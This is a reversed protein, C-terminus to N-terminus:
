PVETVIFSIDFAKHEELEIETKNKNLKIYYSGKISKTGEESYFGAGIIDGNKTFALQLDTIFKEELTMEIDNLETDETDLADYFLRFTYNPKGFTTMERRNGKYEIGLVMVEGNNSVDYDEIEMLRDKVPLAHVRQNTKELKKNFITYGIKEKENRKNPLNYIIMLQTSDRSIRFDVAPMGLTWDYDFEYVNIRETTLSLFNKDLGRLFFQHKKAPRDLKTTLLYLRNQFQFIEQVDEKTGKLLKQLDVDGANKLQRNYKEITYKTKNNQGFSSIISNAKVKKVFFSVADYAVIEQINTNRSTRMIEGWKININTKQAESFYSLSLTVFLIFYRM